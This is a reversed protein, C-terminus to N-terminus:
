GRRMVFHKVYERATPLSHKLQLRTVIDDIGLGDNIMAAILDDREKNRAAFEQWRSKTKM